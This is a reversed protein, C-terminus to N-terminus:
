RLGLLIPKLAHLAVRNVSCVSQRLQFAAFFGWLISGAYCTPSLFGTEFGGKPLATDTTRRRKFLALQEFILLYFIIFFDKNVNATNLVM